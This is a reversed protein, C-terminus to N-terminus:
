HIVHPTSVDRLPQGGGGGGGKRSSSACLHVDQIGGGGQGTNQGVLRRMDTEFLEMRDAVRADLNEVAVSLKVGLEAAFAGSTMHQM